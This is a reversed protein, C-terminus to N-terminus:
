QMALGSCLSLHRKERPRFLSLILKQEETVIASNIGCLTQKVFISNISSIEFLLRPHIFVRSIIPYVYVHIFVVLRLQNVPSREDLTHGGVAALRRKTNKQQGERGRGTACNSHCRRWAGQTESNIQPILSRRDNIMTQRKLVAGSCSPYFCSGGDLSSNFFMDGLCTRLLNTKEWPPIHSRERSPYWSSAAGTFSSVKPALKRGPGSWAVAYWFYRKKHQINKM